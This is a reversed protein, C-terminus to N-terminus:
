IKVFKDSITDMHFTPVIDKYKEELLSIDNKFSFFIRDMKSSNKLEEFITNEPLDGLKGCIPCYAGLSTHYREESRKFKYKLFCEKYEHKHKSKEKSKSVNSNKKKMYKPIEDNFKNM